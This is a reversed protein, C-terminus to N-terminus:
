RHSLKKSLFDYFHVLVILILILLTAVFIVDNNFMHKERLQYAPNRIRRGWRCWGPPKGILIITRNNRILDPLGKVFTSVSSIGSLPGVPKLRKLWVEMWNPCSLASPPCFPFVALPCHFLPSSYSRHYKEFCTPWHILLPWCSILSHRTVSTIKDLIQFFSEIKSSAWRSLDLSIFARDSFRFIVLLSPFLPWIFPWTFLQNGWGYQGSWGLKYVNPSYTQILQIMSEGMKECYDRFSRCKRVWSQGNESKSNWRILHGGVRWCAHYWPDRYKLYFTPLYKLVAQLIDNNIATDTRSGAYM